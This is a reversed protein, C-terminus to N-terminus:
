YLFLKDWITKPDAKVVFGVSFYKRPAAQLIFPVSFPQNSARWQMVEVVVVFDNYFHKIRHSNLVKQM